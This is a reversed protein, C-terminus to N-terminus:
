KHVVDFLCSMQLMESGGNRLRADITAFIRSHDQVLEYYDELFQRCDVYETRWTSFFEKKPNEANFVLEALTQTEEKTYIKYLDEQDIVEKEFGKIAELTDNLMHRIDSGYKEVVDYYAQDNAFKKGIHHMVERLYDVLEEQTPAKFHFKACRSHLADVKVGNENNLSLIMLCNKRWKEMPSKLALQAPHTMSDFEDLFIISRKPYDDSKRKTFPVIEDRVIDIGRDMSANFEKYDTDGEGTDMTIPRGFYETAFAYATCNKGIGPPGIFMMHPIDGTKLFSRLYKKINKHGIVDDLKRPRLERSLDM